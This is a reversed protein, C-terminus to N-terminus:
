RTYPSRHVQKDQIDLMGPDDNPHLLMLQYFNSEKESGGSGDESPILQRQITPKTHGLFILKQLCARNIAMQNNSSAAVQEGIDTHKTMLDAAWKHM